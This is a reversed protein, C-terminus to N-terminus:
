QEIEMLHKSEMRIWADEKSHDALMEWIRYEDDRRKGVWEISSGHIEREM